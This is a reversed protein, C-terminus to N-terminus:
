LRCTYFENEFHERKGLNWLNDLNCLYFLINISIGKELSLLLDKGLLISFYIPSFSFLIVPKNDKELNM